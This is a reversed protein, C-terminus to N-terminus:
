SIKSKFEALSQIRTLKVPIDNWLTAGRYSFSKKLSETLPRPVFLKHNSGRLSHEHVVSTPTFKGSWHSPVMNNVTKYMFTKFQQTRRTELNTWNLSTLIDSSRISYDSETIIRAARNQLRQLKQGLGKGLSDWVISCYDFYPQALSNYIMVLTSLPLLPKLRRLVAIVKSVKSIITSVHHEWTL